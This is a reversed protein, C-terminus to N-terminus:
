CDSVRLAESAGGRGELHAGGPSALVLSEPGLELIPQACRSVVVPAGFELEARHARPALQQRDPSRREPQGSEAGHHHYGFAGLNARVPFYQWVSRSHCTILPIKFGIFLVFIM